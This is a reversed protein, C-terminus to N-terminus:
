VTEIQKLLAYITQRAVGFHNAISGKTAGGNYMIIAMEKDKDTLAEPRGFKTGMKRSAELGAIVRQRILSKEFEALSAFLHFVLKGTPSTTDINETLSQFGKQQQELEHVVTILHQLSRGLRDLKWVVLVDNENMAKLCQNLEPRDVKSGSMKDEYIKECGSALLADIQLKTDQSNTSVRAYGYKM